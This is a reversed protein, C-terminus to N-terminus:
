KQVRIFGKSTLLDSLEKPVETEKPKIQIEIVRDKCIDKGPTILILSNDVIHLYQIPRTNLECYNEKLFRYVGKTIEKEEDTGKLDPLLRYFETRKM